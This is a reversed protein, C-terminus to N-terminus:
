HSIPPLNDYKMQLLPRIIEANPLSKLAQGYAERAKEPEKLALYADGKIEEIMGKFSKDEVNRLAKLAFPLKKEAILLRALRLRAIQRLSANQGKKIVWEMYEEAKKFDSTRIAEKALSLAAFEGYLTNKYKRFLKRAANLTLTKNNQAQHIIMEDYLASARLSIKMQREQWTRWGFLIALALLVSVLIVLGYEKLWKKLLEVQEQETLYDSVTSFRM